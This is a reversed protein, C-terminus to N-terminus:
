PGTARTDGAANSASPSSPRPLPETSSESGQRHDGATFERDSATLFDRATQAHEEATMEKTTM